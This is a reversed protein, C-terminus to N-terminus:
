VRVRVRVRGGLGSGSGLGESTCGPSTKRIEVGVQRLESDERSFVFLMFRVFAEPQKEKRSKKFTQHGLSEVCGSGSSSIKHLIRPDFYLKLFLINESM